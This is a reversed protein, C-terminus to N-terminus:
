RIPLLDTDVPSNLHTLNAQEYSGQDQNADSCPGLRGVLANVRCCWDARIGQMHHLICLTQGLRLDNVVAEDEISVTAAPLQRKWTRYRHPSQWCLGSQSDRLTFSQNRLFLLLLTPM